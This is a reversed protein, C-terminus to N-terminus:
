NAAGGARKRASEKVLYEDYKQELVKQTQALADAPTMQMLVIKQVMNTLEAGVEPAIPCQIPGHANPSASLREFVSIYPNPHNKIFGDSVSALPSNKCHLSCLKEMEDQRNVFAIFEFAEEKHTCGKPIVLADFGCVTVDKLSPDASPFPIAVWDKEMSPKLDHIYNAMWPGQQEMAVKDSIFPNEVSNFGGLSSSFESLAESGLRQSYGQVWTFAAVVRADNLLFKKNVPDWVDTGWWLSTNNIYWGPEMPLYGARDLHRKGSSDITYTNLANAYQDLEDISQPGRKPDLHAARLAGASQEFIHRNYHLAVAAPTSILGYLHHDYHLANWYVPKYYDATIGHAAALEDLPELAHLSSYQVINWDWLGAIDPPVGAATAVLTKQNINSMSMYQVFIHKEKGTTRNFDDVIQRMQQEENGVWKEWYQIVVDHRREVPLSENPRPGLLLVGGAIFLMVYVIAPRIGWFFGMEVLGPLASIGVALASYSNLHPLACFCAVAFFAPAWLLNLRFHWLLRTQRLPSFVVAMLAPVILSIIAFYFFAM